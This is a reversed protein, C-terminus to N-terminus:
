NFSRARTSYIWNNFRCKPTYRFKPNAANQLVTGIYVEKDIGFLERSVESQSLSDSNQAHVNNNFTSIGKFPDAMAHGSWGYPHGKLHLLHKEKTKM